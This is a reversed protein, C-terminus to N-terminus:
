KFYWIGVAVVAAVLLTFDVLQDLDKANIPWLSELPKNKLRM